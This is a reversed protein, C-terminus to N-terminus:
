EFQITQHELEYISTTVEINQQSSLWVEPATESYYRETFVAEGENIFIEISSTDIYIQLDLTETTQITAYRYDGIDYRHLKFKQFESDFELSLLDGQQNKLNLIFDSALMKLNVEAQHKDQLLKIPESLTYEEHKGEDIRLSKLEEVPRMYLHDGKLYLERPLTLAGSWGHEKEPMNAEWMAMWGILIRRGDPTEMTQPAYFDHGHDLEKFQQRTLKYTDYDFEGVFYGNQFLNLYQEEEAEMGQPSFLFVHKGDLEFLDPCEWMYGETMQGNSQDVPGIYEWEYLDESRYLIIRGLERDNQSGVIMYYYGHHEWVKPDRFHHTNDEPPTPIIANQEYKQFHIGDESYAMNQNQWFHDPDDDNYYHHGTYFLYLKDDKVIGTGSFCGNKDEEDGPELAIPLTEWHVLDKSRAHGWHMPGWEPAYPYYQYFIHYYGNFYSFGNPDNIWGYKPMVHYGLRYRLNSVELTNQEEM